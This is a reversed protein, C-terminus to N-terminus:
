KLPFSAEGPSIWTHIGALSCLGAARDPMGLCSDVHVPSSPRAEAGPVGAKGLVGEGVEETAGM